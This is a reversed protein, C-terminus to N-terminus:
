EIPFTIRVKIKAYGDENVVGKRNGSWYAFVPHFSDTAVDTTFEVRSRENKRDEKLMSENLYAKVKPIDSGGMYNQFPGGWIEQSALQKQIIELDPERRHYISEEPVNNERTQTAFAFAYDGEYRLLRVVYAELSLSNILSLNQLTPM